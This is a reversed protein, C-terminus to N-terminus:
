NTDEIESKLLEQLDMFHRESFRIRRKEGCLVIKIQPDTDGGEKLAKWSLIQENIQAAEVSGYLFKACCTPCLCIVNGPRDLWREHTRSILYLGEFYPEGNRKLFTSGCIQCKGGYQEKFFIRVQNDKKEWARNSVRSFRERRQPENQKRGKLEEKTKERRREPDPLPHDYNEESKRGNRGPKDFSEELAETFSFEEDDLYEDKIRQDLFDKLAEPDHSYAKVFLDLVTEDVGLDEAVAQINVAQMELKSALFKNDIFGEPLHTPSIESPKRFSGEKDPLWATNVLLKGARSLKREKVVNKDFNRRSCTEVTGQILHPIDQLIQNWIFLAREKTPHEVAFKLGEIECNPDFRDTGRIHHGHQSKLIVYQERSPKQYQVAVENKVGLHLLLNKLHLYHYDLEWIRPNDKFYVQLYGELIYVDSIPKFIKKHTNQNVALVLPVDQLEGLLKEQQDKSVTRYANIIKQVDDLNEDETIPALNDQQYKPLVNKIIEDVVDPTKLGFSVLFRHAEEDASIAEQVTPFDTAGEPALYVQPEGQDDYPVALGGDQLRIISKQRLIGDRNSWKSPEAWLARQDNLFRYFQVFWEDGQKELFSEDLLRAFRRGDIEDILLEEMFYKRILPTKDQTIDSVLWSSSKGHFLHTLQQNSLLDKLAQSRALKAEEACLYQGNEGPLLKKGEFAELVRDFVPRFINSEPFYERELPMTRLVNADLLKGDRMEELSRVVLDATTEIIRLNWPDDRRINDRGPTTNYHGQILFHLNTEISTPFYASLFSVAIPKISVKESEQDLQFAVEVDTGSKEGTSEVPKSFILWEEEKSIGELEGLLNAKRVRNLELNKVSKLYTGQAQGKVEWHVAEIKNLFLLTRIGLNSLRELIQRHAEMPDIKVHDFPLIILTEGERLDVAPATAPRIYRTIRFHEDGSHIEPSATYAYVSKFGIGFQGIQQIDEAKTGAVVDSIGMVDEENFPIGFHSLELRDDYLRFVVENSSNNAPQNRDRRELADEVNQLLEYIFHTKDAYLMESILHGIDDFETGRRRINDERIAQYDSPM